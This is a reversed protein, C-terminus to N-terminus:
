KKIKPSSLLVVTVLFYVGYLFWTITNNWGKKSGETRHDYYVLTHNVDIISEELDIDCWRLGTLEGVRLGTGVMVAFIPYWYQAEPTNKLYNLFLEQEPKTLARRKETKFCHSKKLERLVNDTPNSRIYDDDVAMEFVQHLVTHISDITAPKLHREDVLSNYYRKIDTKKISMIFQSGIQNRVFTEYMYKYNEFTNNKIGRKLDRWLEYMDNLSTYRAEAKIGDKKDKAEVFWKGNEEDFLFASQGCIQVTYRIGTGGVKTAAARCKQMVRDVEYIEDNEFKISNPRATGDPRHTVNVEVYVKRRECEM